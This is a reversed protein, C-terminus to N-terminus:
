GVNVKKIFESFTVIATQEFKGLSLLDKDGTILYHARGDKALALLFDDKPDRCAAVTSTIEVLEIYPDFVLLMEEISNRSFFKRLKPKSVTTQIEQILELSFLVRSRESLILADLVDLRKSIIFSVWLNTDIVIRVSKSKPM